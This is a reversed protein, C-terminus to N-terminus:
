LYDIYDVTQRKLHTIHFANGAFYAMNKTFNNNQMIIYPKGTTNLTTRNHIEFNPSLIQLVGGVTGINESFTNNVFFIPGQNQSIFIPTASEFSTVM